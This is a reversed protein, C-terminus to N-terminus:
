PTRIGWAQFRSYSAQCTHCLISLAFSRQPPPPSQIFHVTKAQQLAINQQTLKREKTQQTAHPAPSKTPSKAEHVHQQNKSSRSIAHTSIPIANAKPHPSDFFQLAKPELPMAPPAQRKPPATPTWAAGWPREQSKPVYQKIHAFALRMADDTPTGIGFVVLRKNAVCVSFLDYHGRHLIVVVARKKELQGAFACEIGRRSHTYVLYSPAYLVSKTCMIVFLIDMNRSFLAMDMNTSYKDRKTTGELRAYIDKMTDDCWVKVYGEVDQITKDEKIECVWKTFNKIAYGRACQLSEHRCAAYGDGLAATDKLVELIEGAIRLLCFGDARIKVIAPQPTNSSLSPPPPSFSTSGKVLFRVNYGTVALVYDSCGRLDLHGKERLHGDFLNAAVPHFKETFLMKAHLIKSEEVQCIFAITSSYPRTKDERLAFKYFPAFAPLTVLCKVNRRLEILLSSLFPIQMDNTSYFYNGLHLTIIFYDKLQKRPAYCALEEFMGERDQVYKLLFPCALEHRQFVQSMITPYANVIDDEDYFQPALMARIKKSLGTYGYKKVSYLRGFTLKKGYKYKVTYQGQRNANDRVHKLINIDHKSMIDPELILSRVLGIDWKEVYCLRLPSSNLM